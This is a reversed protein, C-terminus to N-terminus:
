VDEQGPATGRPGGAMGEVARRIRDILDDTKLTPPVGHGLRLRGPAQFAEGYTTPIGYESLWRDAVM